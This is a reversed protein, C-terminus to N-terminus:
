AQAPALYGRAIATMLAAHVLEKERPLGSFEASTLVQRTASNNFTIDHCGQTLLKEVAEPNEFQKAEEKIYKKVESDKFQFFLKYVIYAIAAILLIVLGTFIIKGTKSAPDITLNAM